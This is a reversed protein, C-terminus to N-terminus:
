SRDCYRFIRVDAWKLAPLYQRVNEVAASLLLTCCFPFLYILWLDITLLVWFLVEYKWNM